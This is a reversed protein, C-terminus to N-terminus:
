RVPPRATPPDRHGALPLPILRPDTVGSLWSRLVENFLSADEVNWIHHMAPALRLTAQPASGALMTLSRRVAASEKEGAVALLPGAYRRLDAPVGGACVEATMAAATARRVSLGHAVYRARSDPPIGFAAAQARWSWPARWFALQVKCFLRVGAGAPELPAGTLFASRV